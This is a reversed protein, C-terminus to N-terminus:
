LGTAIDVPLWWSSILFRFLELLSYSWHWYSIVTVLCIWNIIYDYRQEHLTKREEYLRKWSAFIQKISLGDCMWSHYIIAKYAALMCDLLGSNVNSFFGTGGEESHFRRPVHRKRGVCEGSNSWGLLVLSLWYIPWLHFYFLQLPCLLNGIYIMLYCCLGAEHCDLYCVCMRMNLFQNWYDFHRGHKLLTSDFSLTYTNHTGSPLLVTCSWSQNWYDFHRGHNLLTTDFSLTRNHTQEICLINM